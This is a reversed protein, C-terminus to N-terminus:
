EIAAIAWRGDERVLHVAQGAAWPLHAADGEVILRDSLHQSIQELRWRAVPDVRFDAAFRESSYRDQLARTVLARAEVFHGQRAAAVFAEVVARPEAAVDVAPSPAPGAPAIPPKVGPVAACAALSLLLWCRRM